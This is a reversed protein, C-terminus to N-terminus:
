TDLSISDWDLELNTLWELARRREIIISQERSIKKRKDRNRISSHICYYYDLFGVIENVGKLQASEYFQNMTIEPPLLDYYDSVQTEKIGLLNIRPLNISWMLALMAEKKWSFNLLDYENLKTKFITKKEVESLYVIWNEKILKERFFNFCEESEDTGITYLVHLVNIRNVVEEKPRVDKIFDLKPLNENYILNQEEILHKIIKRNMRKISFM